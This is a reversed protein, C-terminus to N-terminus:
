RGYKGLRVQWIDEGFKEQVFHHFDSIYQALLSSDKPLHKVPFGSVDKSGTDSFVTRLDTCLDAGFVHSSSGTGVESSMSHSSMTSGVRIWMTVSESVEPM